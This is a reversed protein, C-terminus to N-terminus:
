HFASSVADPESEPLLGASALYRHLSGADVTAGLPVRHAEDVRVRQSSSGFVERVEFEYFATQGKRTRRHRDWRFGVCRALGTRRDSIRRGPFCMFLCLCPFSCDVAASRCSGGGRVAVAVMAYDGRNEDAGAGVRVSALSPLTLRVAPVGQLDM